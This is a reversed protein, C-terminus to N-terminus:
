VRSNQTHKQILHQFDRLFVPKSIIDDPQHEAASSIAAGYGSVIIFPTQDGADRLQQLLQMGTCDAM